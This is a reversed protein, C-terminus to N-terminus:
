NSCNPTLLPRYQFARIFVLPLLYKESRVDHRTGIAQETTAKQIEQRPSLSDYQSIKQLGPYKLCDLVSRTSSRESVEKPNRENPPARRTLQTLGAELMEITKLSTELGEGEQSAVM